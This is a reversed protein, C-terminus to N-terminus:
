PKPNLSYTVFGIMTPLECVEAAMDVFEQRELSQGNEPKFHKELAKQFEAVAALKEEASTPFFFRGIDAPPTRNLSSRLSSM